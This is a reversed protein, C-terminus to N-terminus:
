SASWDTATLALWIVVAYRLAKGCFVLLAFRHFPVRMVGAFLTLPDGVLPVWALLLSWQGYRQFRQQAAQLQHPSAPFWRKDQWRLCQMGLYWNVCSGLTNGATAVLWLLAPAYQQYVLAALLAESSLPLLTAALFAAVFLSLYAM